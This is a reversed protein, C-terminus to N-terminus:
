LSRAPPVAQSLSDISRGTVLIMKRGTAQLQRIANSTRSDVKSGESLTGDFDAALALFYM